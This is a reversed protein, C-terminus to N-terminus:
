LGSVGLSFSARCVDQHLLQHRFKASLPHPQVRVIRRQGKDHRELSRGAGGSGHAPPPPELFTSAPAAPPAAPAISTNALDRSLSDVDGAVGPAGGPCPTDHTARDRNGRRQRRRRSPRRRTSPRELSVPSLLIMDYEISLSMFELSEFRIVTGLGLPHHFGAM